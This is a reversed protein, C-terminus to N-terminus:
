DVSEIFESERIKEWVTIASPFYEKVEDLFAQAKLKSNFGGVKVRYYPKVQEWAVNSIYPFKSRFKNMAREMKRRDDTNIIQIRWGNVYNKEENWTIFKKVLDTIAPEENVYIDQAKVGSISFIVITLFLFFFRMTLM